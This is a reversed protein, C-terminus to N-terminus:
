AYLHVLKKAFKYARLEKKTWGDVSQYMFSQTGVMILRSFEKLYAQPIEVPTYDGKWSNCKDTKSVRLVYPRLECVKHSDTGDKRHECSGCNKKM